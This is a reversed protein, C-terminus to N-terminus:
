RATLLQASVGRSGWGPEENDAALISYQLDRLARCPELGLERQLTERAKQYVKLADARRGCRHLALMLQWYFEEHLPYTILVTSLLGVLQRNHGLALHSSVMLEITELRVEEVWQSFSSLIVGDGVDSLVPDRVLALAAEFAVIAEEHQGAAARVKGRAVKEEFECVDLEDAGVLLSYGSSRTVIRSGQGGRAELFKRLKSIYVHLSARVRNPPNEGWVEGVIQDTSVTENRKILLTALLIEIKRASIHLASEGDVVRVSGLIEYRM